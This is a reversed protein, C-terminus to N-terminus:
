RIRITPISVTNHGHLNTNKGGGNELNYAKKDIGEAFGVWQFVEM